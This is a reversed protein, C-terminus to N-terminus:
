HMPNCARHLARLADVAHDGWHSEFHFRWEWVARKPHGSDWFRMGKDLDRAIDGFDDSLAGCVLNGEEYPDYVEHYLDHKEFRVLVLPPAATDAREVDEFVDPLNTAATYLALLHSRGQHLRAELELENAAHVFTLFGRAAEVFSEVDTM